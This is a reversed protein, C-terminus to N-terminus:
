KAKLRGRRLAEREGRLREQMYLRRFRLREQRRVDVVAYICTAAVVFFAITYSQVQESTWTEPAVSDDTPLLTARGWLELSGCLALVLCPIGTASVYIFTAGGVTAVMAIGLLYHAAPEGAFFWPTGLCWVLAFTASAIVAAFRWRNRTRIESATSCLSATLTPMPLVIPLVRLLLSLMCVSTELLHRKKQFGFRGSM